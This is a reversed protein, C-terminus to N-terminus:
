GFISIYRRKAAQIFYSPIENNDTVIICPIEFEIFRDISKKLNKESLSRIYRMETNGLMQIRDYTFLDVFGSLALGPRHIDARTIRRSFGNESSVLSLKLRGKNENFFTRVSIFENPSIM